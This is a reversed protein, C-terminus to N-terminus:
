TVRIKIVSNSVNEVFIGLKSKKKLLQLLIHSKQTSEVEIIAKDNDHERIYVNQVGNVSLLDKRLQEVKDYNDASVIIQLGVTSKSGFKKFTRGLEEAAKEAAIKLSKDAARSNTLWLVSLHM